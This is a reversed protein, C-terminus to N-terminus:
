AVAFKLHGGFLASRLLILRGSAAKPNDALVLWNLYPLQQQQSFVRSIWPVVLLNEQASVCTLFYFLEQLV